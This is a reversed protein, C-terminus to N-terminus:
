PQDLGCAHRVAHILVELRLPDIGYQELDRIAEVAGKFLADRDEPLGDLEIPSVAGDHIWDLQILAQSYASAADVTLSTLSLAALHSRAVGLAEAHEYMM